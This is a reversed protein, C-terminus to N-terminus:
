HVNAALGDLFVGERGYLEEATWADVHIGNAMSRDILDM